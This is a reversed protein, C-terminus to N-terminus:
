AFEYRKDDVKKSIVQTLFFLSRNIYQGEKVRDKYRSVVDEMQWIKTPENDQNFNDYGACREGGALDM